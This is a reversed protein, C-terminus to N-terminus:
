RTTKKRAQATEWEDVQEAVEAVEEPEADCFQSCSHDPWCTACSPCHLHLPKRCRRCPADALDRAM